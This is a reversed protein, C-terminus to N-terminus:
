RHRSMRTFHGMKRGPRAEAKGYLHLMLDPEVLLAPVRLIDDGILNEMVCDFHRGPNGLPLGAVARIHQEFQSVLCAAETWHGSNHVRPAIENALLAGDALVFFEIGIVGVYDLAALIEAAAAQAAAATESGIRAPLTSSHLIGSRHINEAPDYAALSGDMGRAAIVSIEREFAVFSELVLPVNGMAECTGAFGGTEMNRFVRQGKGDYGMRRTKLIGSGDFKKLAATLEDDNDVPCFDATPIGIGNLFKKEAVRDQAVELARAPPYVPVTVALASAAMVPVNEFEYTVVASVAALEALAATDDYAATIQRNAVQAAPCDPQPELVVTRYGLRAAAMALMRGLQGGGIIGITSGAALSM